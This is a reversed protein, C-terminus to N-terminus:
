LERQTKKITFSDCQDELLALYGRLKVLQFVHMDCTTTNLIYLPTNSLM